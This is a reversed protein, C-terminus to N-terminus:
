ISPRKSGTVLVYWNSQLVTFLKFLLPLMSGVFTGWVCIAAVSQSIVLALMWRDANGLVAQPTMSARMFAILGLTVGLALALVLVM